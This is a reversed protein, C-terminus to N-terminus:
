HNSLTENMSGTRYGKLDLTTYDFGLEHFTKETEERMKPELMRSIDEPLLEIRAMNGHIRVRMQEFGHELLFAEALEVRQLKEKTIAEGYPFRSALCAVSPKKWTPLGLRHSMERIEAKTFGCEKLPSKIGMERIARMGPRYDGMDDVNSGEAVEALNQKFATEQIRRFIMKKCHYCRDPPNIRFADTELDDAICCILSIEHEECFEVAEIEEREPVVPSCVTVAACKEGLAEKAAYLLFTSDVGGSFAVAASGYSQLLHKLNEYKIELSINRDEM